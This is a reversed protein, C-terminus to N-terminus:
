GHVAQGEGGSVVLVEGTIAAAPESALFIAAAAVEPPRVMRGVANGSAVMREYEEPTVGLQGAKEAVWTETRVAAPHIVNVTIGDAGFEHALTRAMHALSLNRFGAVYSGAKRASYGGISVVRGWRNNQMYPIAARICRLYGLYKTSFEDLLDAEDVETLRRAAKGGPVAACNVLIDISGLAQAAHAFAAEVASRDRTDASVAFVNRGSAARLEDATSHLTGETRALIAVDVGEDVLMRAVARGIGRSGGTVM